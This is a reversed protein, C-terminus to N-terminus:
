KEIAVERALSLIQDVHRKWSFASVRTTGVQALRNALEASSAVSLVQQALQEASFRQFYVGAQGCIERHVALDSAVVPLGSSMAEVLPHAFSEAYAPTVYIDASRYVHHLLSYPVAGLQVVEEELNLQRVLGAAREPRYAGPNAGPELKCTLFLRLPRPALERRLYPLARILTEFNRYYNYHSVFLLRLANDTCDLKKRVVDPLPYPNQVFRDHDFGHHIASIPVGTWGKLEEAFSQSPAVVREAAHISWKAFQAKLRTDIWLRTEGRQRLDNDFDRSIYLSNRSLLLQPLSSNWVAFNGASLLVDAGSSSALKRVVRQELWFRLAARSSGQWELFKVNSLGQFEQRLGADLLVTAMADNRAAIQPIVNRVYTLGGGASAALANM